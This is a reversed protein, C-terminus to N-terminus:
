GENSNEKMEEQSRLIDVVHEIVDAWSALDHEHNAPEHNLPTYVQRSYM